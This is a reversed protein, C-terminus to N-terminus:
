RIDKSKRNCSIKSGGIPSGDEAIAIADCEIKGTKINKVVVACAYYYGGAGPAKKIFCGIKQIRTPYHHKKAFQNYSAAWLQGFGDPTTAGRSVDIFAACTITVIVVALFPRM